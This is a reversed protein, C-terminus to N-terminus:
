LLVVNQIPLPTRVKVSHKKAKAMDLQERLVTAAGKLSDKFIWKM